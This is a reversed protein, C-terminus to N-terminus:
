VWGTTVRVIETNKVGKRFLEISADNLILISKELNKKRIKERKREKLENSTKEHNKMRKLFNM